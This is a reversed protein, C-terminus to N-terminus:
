PDRVPLIHVEERQGCCLSCELGTLWFLEKIKKLQETKINDTCFYTVDFPYLTWRLETGELLLPPLM